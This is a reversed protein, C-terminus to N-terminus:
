IHIPTMAPILTVGCADTFPLAGPLWPSVEIFLLEASPHPTKRPFVLGIQAAPSFKYFSRPGSTLTLGELEGSCSVGGMWGVCSEKNSPQSIQIPAQSLDPTSRAAPGPTRCQISPMTKRQYGGRTQYWTFLALHCGSSLPFRDVSLLWGPGLICVECKVYIYLWLEYQVSFYSAYIYKFGRTVLM